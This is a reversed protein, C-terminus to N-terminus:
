NDEDFPQGDSDRIANKLLDSISISHRMTPQAQESDKQHRAPLTGLSANKNGDIEVSEIAHLNKRGHQTTYDKVTIKVRYLKEGMKIPAYLRHIAEVSENKHEKDAHSEVRVAHRVFEVLGAIAQHDAITLGANDGLKQRDKKSVVFDWGTDRNHLTGLPAKQLERLLLDAAQALSKKNLSEGFEKGSLITM